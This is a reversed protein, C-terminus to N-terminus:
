WAALIARVGIVHRCGGAPKRHRADPCNCGQVRGGVVRVHYVSGTSLREVAFGLPGSTYDYYRGGCLLVGPADPTERRLVVAEVQRVETATAM